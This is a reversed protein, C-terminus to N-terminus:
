VAIVNKMAYEDNVKIGCKRAESMLYMYKAKAAEEMYICYDVMKPDSVLDFIERARAIEDKAEEIADIINQQEKSFTEKDKIYDILFNKEM